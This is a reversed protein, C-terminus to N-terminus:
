HDALAKELAAILAKDSPTTYSKFRHILKGKRDILFKEFNWDVEVNGSGENAILYKYVSNKDEGKVHSKSFLPFQVGYNLKCFKKIEGDSGPEQEGFDNSPFGLIVLGKDKYTEYLKQLGAYQPTYGCQSAVNVVLVVKGAYQSFEVPSGDISKALLGYFSPTSAFTSVALWYSFLVKM